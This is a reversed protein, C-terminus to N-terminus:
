PRIVMKDYGFYKWIGDGSNTAWLRGATDYKNQQEFTSNNIKTAAIDGFGNYSTKSIDGAQWIGGVKRAAMQETMRGGIDYRTLLAEEYVVAEADSRTYSERIQRGAIDYAYNRTFGNADTMSALLGGAGYIYSTARDASGSAGLQTM